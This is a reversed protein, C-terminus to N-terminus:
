SVIYPMKKLYTGAHPVARLCLTYLRDAYVARDYQSAANPDVPPVSPKTIVPLPFDRRHSSLYDRGIKGAALLLLYRPRETLADQPVSLLSFLAARRLRANTYPRASALRFSEEANASVAAASILRFLLGGGGEATERLTETGLLRLHRFAMEWLIGDDAVAGEDWARRYVGAAERPVYPEIAGFGDTKLLGRLQAAGLYGPSDDEGIRLVPRIEMECRHRLLSASYESALIDNPAHLFDVYESALLERLIKERTRAAGNNLIETKREAFATKYVDSTLVAGIRRYVGPDDSSAGFYLASAGAAEALATGADAFYQASSASFPFPLQFVLDAGASCLAEARVYSDFVAAGGRQVFNGSLIAIVCDSEERMRSLLYRHGLHLPNCECIVAAAKM